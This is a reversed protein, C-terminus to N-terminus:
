LRRSTKGYGGYLGSVAKEVSKSGLGLGAGATGFATGVSGAYSAEINKKAKYYQGYYSTWSRNPNQTLGQTKLYEDYGRDLNKYADAQKRYLQRQKSQAYLNAAGSVAMSGLMAGAILLPLAM